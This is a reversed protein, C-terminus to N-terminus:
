LPVRVVVRVLVQILIPLSFKMFPFGIYLEVNVHASRQLRCGSQGSADGIKRGAAEEGERVLLKVLACKVVLWQANQNRSTRIIYRAPTRRECDNRVLVIWNGPQRYLLEVADEACRARSTILASRPM